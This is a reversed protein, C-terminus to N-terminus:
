LSCSSLFQLSCPFTADISPKKISFIDAYKYASLFPRSSCSYTSHSTKSYAFTSWIWHFLQPSAKLISCASIQPLTAEGCALLLVHAQLHRRTPNHPLPQDVNNESTKWKFYSSWWGLHLLHLLHLLHQPISSPSTTFDKHFLTSSHSPLFTHYSYRCSEPGM